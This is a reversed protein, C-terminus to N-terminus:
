IEEGKGKKEQRKKGKRTRYLWWTAEEVGEGKDGWRKGQCTKEKGQVKYGAHQRKIM